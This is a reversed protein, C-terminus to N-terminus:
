DAFNGPGEPHEPSEGLGDRGRTGSHDYHIRDLRSPAVGENSASYMSLGRAKSAAYADQALVAGNSVMLVAAVLSAARVANRTSKTNLQKFM